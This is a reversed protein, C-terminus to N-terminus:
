RGSPPKTSTLGPTRLQHARPRRDRRWARRFADVLEPCAGYLESNILLTVGAAVASDFLELLRWAGVRNGYDRWSNNLVDPKPIGPVLDEV